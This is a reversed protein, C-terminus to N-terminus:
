SGRSSLGVCPRLWRVRRLAEYSLLVAVATGTTLLAFKLPIGLPLPLIYVELLVLWPLHLCFLPYVAANLYRLVSSDRQLYGAGYGLLALLWCWLNAVRVLCFLLYDDVGVPGWPSPSTGADLSFFRVQLVASAVIACALSLRRWHYARLLLPEHSAFAFGALFCLGWQCFSAWDHILDRFGPFLARLPLEFLLLVAAFAYIRGGREFWTLIRAFPRQGAGRLWSLLPLMLMCYLWLYAIFWFHHWSLNGSPYLGRSLLTGYFTQLSVDTLGLYRKELWVMPPVLVVIGFVLPVLLRRSREAAFARRDRHRQAFCVGVGAVLFLLALRFQHLFAVFRQLVPSPEPNLVMPLGDPLFAVAAHFYILAIFALVRLWDLDLRRTQIPALVAPPPLGATPKTM